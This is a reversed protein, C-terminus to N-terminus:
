RTTWGPYRRAPARRRTRPRGPLGPLALQRPPPETCTAVHPRYTHEWPDPPRADRGNLSRSKWRGTGDRTVAQNGLEDPQADVPMRRGHETMTWLVPEGCGHPCPELDHRTPIM